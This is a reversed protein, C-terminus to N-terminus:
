ALAVELDVVQGVLHARGVAARVRAAEPGIRERRDQGFLPDIQTVRHLAELVREDTLRELAGAPVLVARRRDELHVARREDLLELLLAPRVFVRDVRRLRTLAGDVSRRHDTALRRWVRLARRIM